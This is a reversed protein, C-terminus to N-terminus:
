IVDFPAPVADAEVGVPYSAPHARQGAFGQFWPQGISLFAGEFRQWIAEGIKEWVEDDRMRGVDGGHQEAVAKWVERGVEHPSRVRQQFLRPVIEWSEQWYGAGIFDYVEGVIGLPDFRHFQRLLYKHVDEQVSSPWGNLRWLETQETQQTETV